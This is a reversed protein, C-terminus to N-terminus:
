QRSDGVDIEVERRRMRELAGDADAPAADSAEKELVDGREEAKVRAAEADLVAESADDVKRDALKLEGERQTAVVKAAGEGRALDLARKAFYILGPIAMALCGLAACLAILTM